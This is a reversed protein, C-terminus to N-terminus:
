LRASRILLHVHAAWDMPWCHESSGCPFLARATPLASRRACASPAEPTLQQADRLVNEYTVTAM